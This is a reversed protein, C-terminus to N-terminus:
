DWISHSKRYITTMIYKKRIRLIYCWYGVCSLNKFGQPILSYISDKQHLWKGLPRIVKWYYSEWLLLWPPLCWSSCSSGWLFPRCHSLCWCPSPRSLIDTCTSDWQLSWLPLWRCAFFSSGPSFALFGSNVHKWRRAWFTSTFILYSVSNLIINFLVGSPM